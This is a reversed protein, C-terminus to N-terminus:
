GIINHLAEVIITSVDFQQIFAHQADAPLPLTNSVYLKSFDSSRLQTIADGAFVPHVFYGEITTYGRAILEHAVQIATGGTAIIDDIIIGTTGECSGSV